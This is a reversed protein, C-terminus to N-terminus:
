TMACRLTGTYILFNSKISNETKFKNTGLNLKKMPYKKCFMTIDIIGRFYSVDEVGIFSLSM